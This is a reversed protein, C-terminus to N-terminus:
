LMARNVQSSPGAPASGRTTPKSTATSSSLPRILATCPNRSLTGVPAYRAAGTRARAVSRRHVEVDRDDGPRLPARNGGRVTKLAFGHTLEAELEQYTQTLPPLRCDDYLQAETVYAARQLTLIEGVDDPGVPAIVFAAM